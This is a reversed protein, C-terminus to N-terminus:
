TIPAPWRPFVVYIGVAQDNRAPHRADGDIPVRMVKWSWALRPQVNPDVVVDRYLAFSSSESRLHVALRGDARVLEVDPKGAFEKLDWGAPVGEAPLAWPVLDAVPVRVRGEADQTPVTVRVTTRHRAGRGSGRPTAAEATAGAGAADKAGGLNGLYFARHRPSVALIVGIVLVLAALALTVVLRVTRNRARRARVSASRAGAQGAGEPPVLPAALGRIRVRPPAVEGPLARLLLARRRSSQDAVRVHAAGGRGAAGLAAHAAGRERLHAPARDRRARGGDGGRHRRPTARRGGGRRRDPVSGASRRGHHGIHLVGAGLRPVRAARAAAPAGGGQAGDGAARSGVQQGRHRDRPGGRARLRRHARGPLRPGRQRRTRRAR